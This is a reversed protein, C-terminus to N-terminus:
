IKREKKFITLNKKNIILGKAGRKLADNIFLHGDRKGKLAIFYSGKKIKQSNFEFKKDKLRYFLKNDV